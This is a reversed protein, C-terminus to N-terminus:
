LKKLNNQDNKVANSTKSKYTVDTTSRIMRSLRARAHINIHSEFHDLIELMSLMFLDLDLSKM